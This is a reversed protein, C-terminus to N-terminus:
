QELSSIQQEFVEKADDGCAVLIIKKLSDSRGEFNSIGELIASTSEEYSLGGVGSGIAPVAISDVGKEDALELGQEVSAAVNEATAKGSPPMGACHVVFKAKLKGGSTIVAQGPDIPGKVMAEEEIITGGRRKIAGAVGAGMWLHSNAANVIADAQSKSIDGKVVTIELSGLRAKM